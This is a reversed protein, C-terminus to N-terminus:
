LGVVVGAPQHVLAGRDDLDGGSIDTVKVCIHNGVCRFFQRKIFYFAVPKGLGWPTNEYEIGMRIANGEATVGNLFRDFWESNILQLSFGFKNVKPDKIMRIFFDGDRVGSILRLQCLSLYSRRGRIDCFEPRKFETYRSEILQNAYLDPSGILITANGRIVEDLSRRSLGDALHFARYNEAETGQKSAAWERVRNIRSEHMMLAHKEDAAHVVRNEREKVKSRMMIGNEGFINAWLLERYKIYLPNIKFLDRCRSTLAYANQWIDADDGISQLNWDQNIGGISTVDRFGRQQETKFLSKIQQFSPIKM